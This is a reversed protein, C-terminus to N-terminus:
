HTEKPSVLQGARLVVNKQNVFAMTNEGEEEQVKKEHDEESGLGSFGISWRHRNHEAISLFVL